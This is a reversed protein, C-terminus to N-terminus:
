TEFSSQVRFEANRVRPDGHSTKSESEDSEDGEDSGDGARLRRIWEVGRDDVLNAALGDDIRLRHFRVPPQRLHDARARGARGAVLGAGVPHHLLEVLPSQLVDVDLSEREPLAPGDLAERRM